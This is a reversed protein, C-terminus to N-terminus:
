IAVGSLQKERLTFLKGKLSPVSPISPINDYIFPIYNPGM